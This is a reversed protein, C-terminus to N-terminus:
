QTNHSACHYTRHLNRHRQRRGPQASRHQLLVCCRRGAHQLHRRQCFSSVGAGAGRHLEPLRITSGRQVRQCQVMCEVRHVPLQKHKVRHMYQGTDLHWSGGCDPHLHDCRRRYLSINGIPGGGRLFERECTHDMRRIPVTDDARQWQAHDNRHLVICQHLRVHHCDPM